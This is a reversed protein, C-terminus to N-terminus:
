LFICPGLIHICYIGLYLSAEKLYRFFFVTAARLIRKGLVRFIVM